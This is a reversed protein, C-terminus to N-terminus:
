RVEEAELELEPYLKPLCDPCLGHSILSDTHSAIYSEIREWYGNDDRIKHCLSCMPLMGNLTRISALAKELGTVVTELEDQTRRLETIDTVVTRTMVFGGSPDRVATASMLAPLATGDKRRYDVLVDHVESTM